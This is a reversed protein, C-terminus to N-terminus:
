FFFGVPAIIGILKEDQKGCAAEGRWDAEDELWRSKLFFASFLVSWLLPSPFYFHFYLFVPAKKIPRDYEEM